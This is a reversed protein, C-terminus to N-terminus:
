WGGIKDWAYNCLKFMGPSTYTEAVGQMLVWGGKRHLAQGIRRTEPKCQGLMGVRDNMDPYALRLDAELAKLATVEASVDLGHFAHPDPASQLRDRENCHRQRQEIYREKWEMASHVFSPSGKTANRMESTVLQAQSVSLGALRDRWTEAAFSALRRSCCLLNAVVEPATSSSTLLAVIQANGLLEFTRVDLRASLNGGKLKVVEVPHTGHAWVRVPWRDNSLELPGVILGARGNLEKRGALGHVVVQRMPCLPAPARAITPPMPPPPQALSLSVREFQRRLLEPDTPLGRDDIDEDTENVMTEAQQDLVDALEHFGLSRMDNATEDPSACTQTFYMQVFGQRTLAGSATTDFFTRIQQLEEEAFEEGENCARAFSQMEQVSLAGDCDADFRDFIEGLVLPLEAPLESWDGLLSDGM